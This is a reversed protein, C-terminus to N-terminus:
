EEKEEPQEHGYPCTEWESEGEAHFILAAGCVPCTNKSDYEQTMDIMNRRKRLIEQASIDGRMVKQQM